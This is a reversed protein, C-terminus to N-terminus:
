LAAKKDEMTQALGWYAMACDPDLMAVQRFAREAEYYWFSYLLNVGQDFFAQAEESNTTIPFHVNGIGHMRRAQQRPGEDFGSGPQSHSRDPQPTTVAPAPPVKGNHAIAPLGLLLCLVPAAAGFTKFLKVRTM